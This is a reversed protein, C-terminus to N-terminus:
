TSFRYILSLFTIPKRFLIPLFFYSLKMCPLKQFFTCIHKGFTSFNIDYMAFIWKPCKFHIFKQSEPLTNCLVNLTLIINRTGHFNSIRLLHGNQGFVDAIKHM